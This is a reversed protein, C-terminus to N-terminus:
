ATIDRAYVGVGKSYDSHKHGCQSCLLVSFMAWWGNTWPNLSLGSCDSVSRTSQSPFFIIVAHPVRHKPYASGRLYNSTYWLFFKLSGLNKYRGMCLFLVLILLMLYRNKTIPLLRKGDHASSQVYKRALFWIYIPKEGVEKSCNRRLWSLM